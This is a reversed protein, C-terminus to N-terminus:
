GVEVRDRGNAKARYLAADARQLIAEASEECNTCSVGASATVHLSDGDFEVARSRLDHLLRELTTIAPERDTDPLLLLFEEGGWRGAHDTARLSEQAMAAFHRLAADGAAHGRTDNLQKFRDFDVLAVSLPRGQRRGREIELDLQQVLLRRNGLGTLEDITAVRSLKDHADRLAAISREMRIEQGIWQAFMGILDLDAQSFLSSQEVSSFYLTGYLEGAVRIPCGIYAHLGFRRYCAKDAVRARNTGDIGLPGSRSLVESCYTEALPYVDGIRMGHDPDIADVIEYRDANIRSVVGVPLGFYERGLDLIARRRQVFDLNQDSAITHLAHLAKEASLRASVDRVIGLYMIQGSAPDRIPGAITEADFVSGDRRRYRSLYSSHEIAANANFRVRGKAVFDQEDTYLDRASRGLLDREDYGFLSLTAPNVLIIRRQEDAVIVAEDLDAFVHSLVAKLSAEPLPFAEITGAM